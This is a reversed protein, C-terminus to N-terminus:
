DGMQTHVELIGSGGGKWFVVVTLGGEGRSGGVVVVPGGLKESKM